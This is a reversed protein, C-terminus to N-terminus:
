GERQTAKDKGVVTCFQGYYEEDGGASQQPRARYLYGTHGGGEDDEEDFGPLALWLGIALAVILLVLGIVLIGWNM